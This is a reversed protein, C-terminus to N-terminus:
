SCYNNFPYKQTNVANEGTATSENIFNYNYYKSLTIYNNDVVTITSRIFHIFTAKQLSIVAVHTNVYCMCACVCCTQVVIESSSCLNVLRLSFIHRFCLHRLITDQLCTCVCSM